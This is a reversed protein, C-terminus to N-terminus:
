PRHQARRASTTFPDPIGGALSNKHFLFVDPEESVGCVRLGGQARQM